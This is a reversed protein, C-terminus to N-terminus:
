QHGQEAHVAVRQGDVNGNGNEPHNRHSNELKQTHNTLRIWKINCNEKRCHSNTIVAAVRDPVDNTKTRRGAMRFERNDSIRITPMTAACKRSAQLKMSYKKWTGPPVILAAM